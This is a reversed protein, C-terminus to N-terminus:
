STKRDAEGGALTWPVLDALLQDCAAAFANVVADLRDASAPGGRDFAKVAVVSRRRLSVLKATLGVHVTPNPGTFYEAQFDRVDANLVYDPRIDASDRGVSLIRESAEFAEVVLSQVMLPVRDVWNARAYYEVQVPNHLLAIRSTDLSAPAIPTAVELQWDVHPMDAPFQPKPKLRYLDPPPGQGPVLTGCGSALGLVPTAALARLLGRRSLAGSNKRHPM